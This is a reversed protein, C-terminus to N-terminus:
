LTKADRNEIIVIVAPGVNKQGIIRLWILKVQILMISAKFFRCYGGANCETFIADGTGAHAHVGSVVIAGTMGTDDDSVKGVLHQGEIM